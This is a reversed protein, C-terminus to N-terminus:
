LIHNLLINAENIPTREDLSRSSSRLLKLIGLNIIKNRVKFATKIDKM